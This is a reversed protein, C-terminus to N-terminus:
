AFFRDKQPCGANPSGGRRSAAGAEQLAIAPNASYDQDAQVSHFMM